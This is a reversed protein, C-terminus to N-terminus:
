FLRANFVRMALGTLLATTEYVKGSRQRVNEIGSVGGFSIQDISMQHFLNYLRSDRGM